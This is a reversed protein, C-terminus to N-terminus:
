PRRWRYRIAATAEENDTSPEGEAAFGHREYFRRAGANAAFTWLALERRRAQALAVLAAGLGEGQCAPDVYLQDLEDGDLAMLAVLRGPESEALWTELATVVPGAIWERVDDDGHAMPPIGGAARRARLYVDALAPADAGRARRLRPLPGTM